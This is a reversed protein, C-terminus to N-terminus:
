PACSARVDVLQMTGRGNSRGLGFHWLGDNTRVVQASLPLFGLLAENRTMRAPLPTRSWIGTAPDGAHIWGGTSSCSSSAVERCHTVVFVSCGDTTMGFDFGDSAGPATLEVHAGVPAGVPDLALCWTRQGDPCCPQPQHEWCLVMEDTTLAVLRRHTGATAAPWGPQRPLVAVHAGLPADGRVRAIVQHNLDGRPIATVVVDTARTVVEVRRSQVQVGPAVDVAPGLPALTSADLRRSYLHVERPGPDVRSFGVYIESGLAAIGAFGVGDEAVLTPGAVIGGDYDFGRAELARAETRHAIVFRGAGCVAGEALLGDSLSDGPLSVGLRRDVAVAGGADLRVLRYDSGDRYVAAVGGGPVACVALAADGTHTTDTVTPGLTRWAGSPTCTGVCGPVGADSGGDTGADGGGRCGPEDVNGDCDDDVGNDCIEPVPECMCLLPDDVVGDCDDDVDNGCREATPGVAGECASWEGAVCVQEGARCAGVPDGGCSRRDDASCPCGEDVTGDCDRDQGDCAEIGPVVSGECSAEGWDGWEAASECRQAGGEACAGLGRMAGCAQTEGPACPCGEDTRGDVDDDFGNGCEDGGVRPGRGGDDNAGLDVDTSCGLTLALAASLLLRLTNM